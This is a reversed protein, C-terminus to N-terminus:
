FIAVGNPPSAVGGKVHIPMSSFFFTWRQRKKCEEGLRKLDFLEGIPMGWGPLLWEHLLFDTEPFPLAELAPQDGAVAAFGHDWLWRLTPEASELGISAPMYDKALAAKAESALGDYSETFGTRIFLIDGTQFATGQAAAVLDLEAATIRHTSHVNVAIGRAAAWAAWDLLVGRGVIGGTEVWAQTGIADSTMMQERTTGNYFLGASSSGYHRFGDWQTSSQTNFTVVDDHIHAAKPLIRHEFPQRGFAPPQMRDLPWDTPVRTGDRIEAAAAAAVRAPTLLHLAGLEDSAGYLGWANGPPGDPRLPLSDFSPRDPMAEKAQPNDM